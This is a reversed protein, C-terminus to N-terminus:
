LRNPNVHDKSEKNPVPHYGKKVEGLEARGRLSQPRFFTGVLGPRGFLPADADYHAWHARVQHLRRKRGTAGSAAADDDAHKQLQKIRLWKYAVPEQGARAMRRREARQHPIQVPESLTVNRCNMLSLFFAFPSILKQALIQSLIRIDPREPDEGALSFAFFMRTGLDENPFARGDETLYLAANAEGKVEGRMMVYARIGLIFGPVIGAELTRSRAAQFTPQRLNDELSKQAEWRDTPSLLKSFFKELMQERVAGERREVPIPICVIHAGIRQIGAPRGPGEETMSPPCAFEIWTEEGPATLRHFDDALSWIWQDSEEYFWYAAETADVLTARDKVWALDPDLELIGLM